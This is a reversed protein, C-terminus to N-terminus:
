ILLWNLLVLLIIKKKTFAGNGAVDVNLFFNFLSVFAGFGKSVGKANILDNFSELAM